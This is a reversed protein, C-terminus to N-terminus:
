LWSMDEWTAVLTMVEAEDCSGATGTEVHADHGGGNLSSNCAGGIGARGTASGGRDGCLGDRRGPDARCEGGGQLLAIAGRLRCREPLAPVPNHSLDVTELHQLGRLACLVRLAGADDIDNRAVSVTRLCTLTGVSALWAYSASHATSRAASLGAGINNDALDLLTLHPMNMSAIMRLQFVTLHNCPLHLARLAPFGAAPPDPSGTQRQVPSVEHMRLWRGQAETTVPAPAAEEQVVHQSLVRM